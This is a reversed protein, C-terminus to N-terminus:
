LGLPTYAYTDTVLGSGGSGQSRVELVAPFGDRDLLLRVDVHDYRDDGVWRLSATTPWVSSAVVDSVWRRTDVRGVLAAGDPTWTPVGVLVQHLQELPAPAAPSFGDIPTSWDVDQTWRDPTGEAHTLTGRRAVVDLVGSVPGIRVQQDPGDLSSSWTVGIQGTALIRDWVATVEPAVDPTPLRPAAMTAILLGVGIATGIGAAGATVRLLDTQWAPADRERGHVGAVVRALIAALASAAALFQVMRAVPEAPVEGALLWAAGLALAVGLLTSHLHSPRRGEGITHALMGTAGSSVVAVALALLSVRRDTVIWVGAGAAAVLVSGAWLVVASRRPWRSPGDAAPLRESLETVPMNRITAFLTSRGMPVPLPSDLLCAM